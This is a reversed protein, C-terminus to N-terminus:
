DEEATLTFEGVKEARYVALKRLPPTGDSHLYPTPLESAAAVAAEAPSDAFVSTRETGLVDLVVFLDTM